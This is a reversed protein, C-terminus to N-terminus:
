KGLPLNIYGSPATFIADAVAVETVKLTKIQSIVGNNDSIKSFLPLGKVGSLGLAKLEYSDKFYASLDLNAYLEDNYYVTGRYDGKVSVSNTKVGAVERHLESSAAEIDKLKSEIMGTSVTSYYFQGDFESAADAYMLISGNQPIFFYSVDDKIIELAVKDKKVHWQMTYTGNQVDFVEQTVVGEFDAAFVSGIFLSVIITSIIRQIM